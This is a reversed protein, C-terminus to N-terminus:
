TYRQGMFRELASHTLFVQLYGTYGLTAEDSYSDLTMAQFDKALRVRANLRNIDGGAVKDGTPKPGFGIRPPFFNRKCLDQYRKFSELGM